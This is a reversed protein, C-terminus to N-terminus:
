SGRPWLFAAGRVGSADGHAARVLKTRLDKPVTWREWLGPVNSFIRDNNSVGGGLVIARPDLMNVVGALARALAEEYAAFAQDAVRDGAAARRAIEKGDVDDGGLARYRGILGRGSTFSEICDAHGCVCVYPAHEGPHLFPLTTHSWETAAGNEGTLVRGDVVVGGGVGTGLTAGFVVDPRSRDLDAPPAAAGDIAESLVFCKGDNALRVPRGLAAALDRDLPRDNLCALNSNLMVGRSPHLVGPTGVGVTASGGDAVSAELRAVVGAVARLVEEYVTPTRERHRALERGDAALAIGEIKTGGVDIGIRMRRAM